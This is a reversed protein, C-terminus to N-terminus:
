VQLWSWDNGLRDALNTIVEVTEDVEADPRMGDVTIVTGMPTDGSEVEVEAEPYERKILNTYAQCYQTIAKETQEPTMGESLFDHMDSDNLTVKIEKM